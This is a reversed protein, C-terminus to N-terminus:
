QESKAKRKRIVTLIGVTVATILCCSCLIIIGIGVKSPRKSVATNGVRCIVSLTTEATTDVTGESSPITIVLPDPLLQYGPLTESEYFTYEGAALGKIFIFGSEHAEFYEAYEYSEATDGIDAPVVKYIGDFLKIARFDDTKFRVGPLHLTNDEADVSEIYLSYGHVATVAAEGPDEPNMGVPPEKLLPNEKMEGAHATDAFVAAFLMVQIVAAIVITFIRRGSNDHAAAPLLIRFKM